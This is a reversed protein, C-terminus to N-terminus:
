TLFDFWKKGLWKWPSKQQQFNEEHSVYTRVDIISYKTGIEGTKIDEQRMHKPHNTPHLTWCQAVFHGKKQCHTCTKQVRKALQRRRLQKRYAKM